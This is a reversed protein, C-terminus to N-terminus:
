SRRRRGGGRRAAVEQEAALGDVEARGGLGLGGADRDDVLLRREEGVERDGLVDEHAALREAAAAADVPPSARRPRRREEVPEADADVRAARGAAERDGVLLDDLDGLRDREVGPQEDHVLRGRRQAADLDVPEEGDGAAQAVLTARQDEDGVAEVLHEGEAVGDGHHAVAGVDGGVAIASVVTSSITARITPRSTPSRNGLVAPRSRRRRHELDCPRSVAGAHEM